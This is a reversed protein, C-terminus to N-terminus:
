AVIVQHKPLLRKLVYHRHYEAAAHFLYASSRQIATANRATMADLLEQTWKRHDYSDCEEVPGLQGARMSSTWREARSNADGEHRLIGRVVPEIEDFRISSATYGKAKAYTSFHEHLRRCADLFLQTNDRQDVDGLANTFQWKLFPMDPLTDVGGHGLGSQNAFRAKFRERIDWLMDVMEPSTSEDLQITEIAVKNLTSTTGSFGFHSFTDAYVHAAIGMLQLSFPEDAQTVHHSVMEQAIRSDKRCIIRELYKGNGGGPLFHFPVWVLRSDDSTGNLPRRMMKRFASVMLGVDASIDYPSHATAIGIVSECTDGGVQRVAELEAHDQDDVYQSAHAIIQADHRPIGAAAAMAYTGYYHMDSQM